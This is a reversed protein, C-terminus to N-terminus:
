SLFVLVLNALVQWKVSALNKDYCSYDFVLTFECYYFFFFFYSLSSIVYSILPFLGRNKSDCVCVCAFGM